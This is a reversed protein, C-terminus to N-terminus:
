ENKWRFIKWFMDFHREFFDQDVTLRDKRYLYNHSLFGIHVSPVSTLIEETVAPYHRSIEEQTLLSRGKELLDSVKKRYVMPSTIAGSKGLLHYLGDPDSVHVSAGLFMADPRHGNYFEDMIELSNEPKIVTIKLGAQEIWPIFIDLFGPACIILPNAQSKKLLEPIYKEGEKILYKLQEDPIRGAELPLFPQFDVKFRRPLTSLESAHENSIKWILYQLARRMRQDSLIRNHMGNVHFWISIDEISDTEEILDSKPYVGSNLAVIDIEGRELKTFPDDTKIVIIQEFTSKEKSFQNKKLAIKHTSLQEILYKGTGIFDSGSQKFAAFRAGTLHVLAMRMSTSFRVILTEDDLATVGSLMHTANFKDFGEVFSLVDSLNKNASNEKLLLGQEWSRKFDHATLSSGDSFKRGTDIKFLLQTFNTNFEFHTAALPLVLGNEGRQVLAEFANTLLADEIMTHQSAPYLPLKWEQPFSIILQRQDMKKFFGQWFFCFIAAAVASIAIAATWVSSKNKHFDLKM